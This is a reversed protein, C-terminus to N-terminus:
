KNSENFQEKLWDFDNIYGLVKPNNKYVTGFDRGQQAGM